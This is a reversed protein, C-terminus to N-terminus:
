APVGNRLKHMMDRWDGWAENDDQQPPKKKRLFDETILGRTDGIEVFYIPMGPDQPLEWDEGMDDALITADQWGEFAGSNCMAECVEGIEFKM